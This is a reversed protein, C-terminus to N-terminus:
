SNKSHASKEIDLYSRCWKCWINSVTGINTGYVCIKCRWKFHLWNSDRIFTYKLLFFFLIIVLSKRFLLELTFSLLVVLLHSFCNKSTIQSVTSVFFLCRFYPSWGCWTSSPSAVPCFLSFNYNRYFGNEFPPCFITAKSGAPLCDPQPQLNIFLHFNSFDDNKM